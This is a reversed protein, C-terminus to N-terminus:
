TRYGRDAAADKTPRRAEPIDEWAAQRLRSPEIDDQSLNLGLEDVRVVRILPRGDENKGNPLFDTTIGVYSDDVVVWMGRRLGYFALAQKHAPIPVTAAVVLSQKVKPEAAKGPTAGGFLKSILSM